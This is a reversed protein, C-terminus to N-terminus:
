SKVEDGFVKFSRSRGLVFRGQIVVGLGFSRSVQKQLFDLIESRGWFFRSHGSIVWFLIVKFSWVEVLRGQFM